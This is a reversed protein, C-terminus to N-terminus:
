VVILSRKSGLGILPVRAVGPREMAVQEMRWHRQYRLHLRASPMRQTQQRHHLYPRSIPSQPSSPLVGSSANARATSTPTRTSPIASTRASYRCTGNTWTELSSLLSPSCPLRVGGLGDRVVLVYGGRKGRYDECKEYLTSLSVGDQELSYILKWEEVLELRAPILLRIEEALTKTLLRDKEKTGDRWGLLEIPTLPPPQFPTTNRKPPNFVAGNMDGGAGNSPTQPSRRSSPSNGKPTSNPDSSLRRLIGSVTYAVPHTLYSTSSQRSRQQSTASPSSRDSKPPPM